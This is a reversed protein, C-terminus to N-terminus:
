APHLDDFGTSTLWHHLDKRRAGADPIAHPPPLGPDRRGCRGLEHTVQVASNGGGAVIIRKGAYPKPSRYDAVHLVEGTSDQQGPLEPLLPRTLSGSAAVVGAASISRGDTTRLVFGAADSEVAEIHTRTRIDVDLRDAFRTLCDVVEDRHPHRDGNHEM